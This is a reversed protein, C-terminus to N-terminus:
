KSAKVVKATETGVTFKGRRSVVLYVGDVMAAIQKRADKFSNAEAICCYCIGPMVKEARVDTLLIMFQSKGRTKKPKPDKPPQTATGQQAASTLTATM